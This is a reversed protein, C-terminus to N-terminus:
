RRSHGLYDTQINGLGERPWGRKKNRTRPCRGKSPPEKLATLVVELGRVTEREKEKFVVRKGDGDMRCM